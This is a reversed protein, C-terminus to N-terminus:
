FDEACEDAMAVTQPMVRPLERDFIHVQIKSILVFYSITKMLTPLNKLKLHFLGIKNKKCNSGQCLLYFFYNIM